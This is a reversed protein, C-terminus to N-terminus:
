RRDKSLIGLGLLLLGLILVGVFTTVTMNTVKRIMDDTVVNSNYKSIGQWDLANMEYENGQYVYDDWFLIFM